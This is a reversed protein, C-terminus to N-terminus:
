GAIDRAALAAEYQRKKEDRGRIGAEALERAQIPTPRIPQSSNGLWADRDDLWGRQRWWLPPRSALDAAGDGTITMAGAACVTTFVDWGAARLVAAAAPGLGLAQFAVDGDVLHERAQDVWMQVRPTVVTITVDWSTHGSYPLGEYLHRGGVVLNSAGRTISDAGLPSHMAYVQTEGVRVHDEWGPGHGMAAFSSDLGGFAARGSPVIAPLNM